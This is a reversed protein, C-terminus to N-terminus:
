VLDGQSMYLVAAGLCDDLAGVATMWIDGSTTNSGDSSGNTIIRVPAPTQTHTGNVVVTRSGLGGPGGISGATQNQGGGIVVQAGQQQQDEQERKHQEMQALLGAVETRSVRWATM